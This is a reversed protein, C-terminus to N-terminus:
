KSIVIRGPQVATACYFSSPNLSCNNRTSGSMRVFASQKDYPKSATMKANHRLKLRNRYIEFRNVEMNSRGNIFYTPDVKGDLRFRPTLKGGVTAFGRKRYVIKSGTLGDFVVEETHDQLGCSGITSPSFNGVSFSYSHQSTPPESAQTM